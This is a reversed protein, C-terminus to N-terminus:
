FPDFHGLEAHTAMAVLQGVRFDPNELLFDRIAALVREPNRDPM